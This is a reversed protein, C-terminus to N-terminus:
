PSAFTPRLVEARQVEEILTAIREVDRPALFAGRRKAYEEFALDSQAYFLRALEYRVEDSRLVGMLALYILQSTRLGSEHLRRAHQAEEATARPERLAAVMLRLLRQRTGEHQPAEDKYLKDAFTLLPDLLLPLGQEMLDVRKGGRQVTVLVTRRAPTPIGATSLAVALALSPVSRPICGRLTQAAKEAAERVEGVRVRLKATSMYPFIFYELNGEAAFLSAWLGAIGLCASHPGIRMKSFSFKGSVAKFGITGLVRIGEMFEPALASLMPIECAEADKPYGDEFESLAGELENVLRGRKALSRVYETYAKLLDEARLGVSAGLAESLFARLSGLRAADPGLPPMLGYKGEALDGVFEGVARCLSDDSPRHSLELEGAMITPQVDPSVYSALLSLSTSLVLNFFTNHPPLAFRLSSM